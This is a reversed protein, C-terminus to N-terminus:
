DLLEADLEALASSDRHPAVFQGYCISTEELTRWLTGRNAEDVSAEILAVRTLWPVNYASRTGSRWLGRSTHIYTTCRVPEGSIKASPEQKDSCSARSVAVRIM